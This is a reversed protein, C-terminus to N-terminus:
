SKRKRDYNAQARGRSSSEPGSKKEKIVGLLEKFTEEDPDASPVFAEPDNGEVAEYAEREARVDENRLSYFQQKLRAM